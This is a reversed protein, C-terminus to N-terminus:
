KLSQKVASITALVKFHVENNSLWAIDSDTTSIDLSISLMSLM